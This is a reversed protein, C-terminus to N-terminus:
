LGGIGAAALREAGDRGSLGSAIAERLRRLTEVSVAEIPAPRLGSARLATRSLGAEARGCCESPTRRWPPRCRAKASARALAARAADERLRRHRAPSGSDRARCRSTWRAGAVLAGRAAGRRGARHDCRDPPDAGRAGLRAARRRRRGCLRPPRGGRALAAGVELRDGLKTALARGRTTRRRARSSAADPARHPRSPPPAVLLWLEDGDRAAQDFLERAVASAAFDAARWISRSATRDRSGCCIGADRPRRSAVGDDDLLERCRAPRGAHYVDGRSRDLDARARRSRRAPRRASGRPARGGPQLAPPGALGLAEQSVFRAALAYHGSSLAAGRWREYIAAEEEFRGELSRAQARLANDIRVPEPMRAALVLRDAEDSVRTRRPAIATARSGPPRSGCCRPRARGGSRGFLGRAVGGRPARRPSARPSAVLGGGRAASCLRACRRRRRRRRRRARLAGASGRVAARPQREAEIRALWPPM